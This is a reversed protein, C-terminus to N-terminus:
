RIADTINKPTSGNGLPEDECNICLSSFCELSILIKLKTIIKIQQDSPLNLPQNRSININYWQSSLTPHSPLLLMAILFIMTFYKLWSFIHRLQKQKSLCASRCVHNISFSCKWFSWQNSSFLGSSIEWTFTNLGFFYTM